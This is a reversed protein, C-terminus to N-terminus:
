MPPCLLKLQRRQGLGLSQCVNQRSSFAMDSPAVKLLNCAMATFYQGWLQHTFQTKLVENVQSKWRPCVSKVKRALVQLEDAFQDKTEKPKQCRAYFDSLLSSFTEGSEFLMRLHEILGSYTWQDNMDLYFKVAGYAHEATYFKVLQVAEHETLNCDQVGM